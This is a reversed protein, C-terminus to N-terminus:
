SHLGDRQLQETVQEGDEVLREDPNVLRGVDVVADGVKGRKCVVRNGDDLLSLPLVSRGVGVLCHLREDVQARPVLLFEVLENM